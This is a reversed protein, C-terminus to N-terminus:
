YIVKNRGRYTDTFVHCNPCLLRLNELRNDDSRGNVHDMELPIPKGLWEVLGCDACKEELIGERILRIKLKFNSTRFPSREQLYEDLSRKPGIQVGKAWRQGKLHTFDIGHKELRLRLHKYNGGAPRLGLKNLVEALSTAEAVAQRMDDITYNARRSM